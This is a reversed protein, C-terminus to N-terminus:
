VTSITNKYHIYTQCDASSCSTLPFYNILLRKAIIKKKMVDNQWTCNDSQKTYIRWTYCTPSTLLLIVSHTLKRLLWKLSITPWNAMDWAHTYGLNLKAGDSLHPVHQTCHVPRWLHDYTNWDWDLNQPFITTAEPQFDLTKAALMGCCSIHVM